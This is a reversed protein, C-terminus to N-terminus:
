VVYREYPEGSAIVPKHIKGHPVLLLDGPRLTHAVDEIFYTVSGSLLLVLKDFEHYHYGVRTACTDKLHFIRFDEHLYGRREGAPTGIPSDM